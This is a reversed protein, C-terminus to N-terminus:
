DTTLLKKLVREKYSEWYREHRRRFPSFVVFLVVNDKGFDTENSSSTWRFLILTLKSNICYYERNFNTGMNLQKNKDGDVEEFLSILEKEMKRLKIQGPRSSERLETKLKTNQISCISRQIIKENISKNDGDSRWAKGGGPLFLILM